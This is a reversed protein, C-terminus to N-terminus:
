GPHISSHRLKHLQSYFEAAAAETQRTIRRSRALERHQDTSFDFWASSILNQMQALDSSVEARMAGIAAVSPSQTILRKLNNQVRSRISDLADSPRTPWIQDFIFWMVLVGLAIGIVRDRAPAIQNAPGFGPLDTLFFAFAIQVGVYGIGPSRSIWASAMCVAGAVVVLSTISDMNPFFLSEILIALAGGIAAGALRYLQKQKMAGTSSLGTFLVTVVCTLIGPWAIANYLVYCIVASLTLKLSYLAADPSTFADSHFIKRSAPAVVIAEGGRMTEDIAEEYRSLEAFIDRLQTSTHQDPQPPRPNKPDLIHECLEAIRLHGSCETGSVFGLVSSRELVRTLLGIRFRMGPPLRDPSSSRLEEYLQNLRFDGAHAYQVVRQHLRSIDSTRTPTSLERHFAALLQLRRNMETQLEEAPHRSGFLFNVVGATGLAIALSAMNFLTATVVTNPSRHTDWGALDVFSYFGFITFFLPYRTGAMCFGAVFVALVFGIFRFVETGDTLQIWFLTAACAAAAGAFIQLVNRFTTGPSERQLLLILALALAIGPVRLTEAIVLALVMSLTDIMTGGMRGPYPELEAHLSRRFREFRTM